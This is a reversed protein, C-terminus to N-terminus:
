TRLSIMRGRNTQEICIKDERALWGIAQMVIDRPAEILEVLKTVSLPETGDLAHWVLGATDGIQEIHSASTAKAM